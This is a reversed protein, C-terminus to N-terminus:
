ERPLIINLPHSRAEEKAHCGYQPRPMIDRSRQQDEERDDDVVIPCQFSGPPSQDASGSGQQEQNHGIQTVQFKIGHQAWCYLKFKGELVHIAHLLEGHERKTKSIAQGVLAKVLWYMEVMRFYRMDRTRPHVLDVVWKTAEKIIDEEM